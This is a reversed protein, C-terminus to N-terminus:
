DLASLGLLYYPIGRGAVKIAAIEKDPAPNDWSFCWVRVPTGDDATWEACRHKPLMTNYDAGTLAVERNFRVPIDATSGDAYEVTLDAVASGGYMAVPPKRMSNLFYLRSAKLGDPFAIKAEDPLVPNLQSHVSIVAPFGDREGIRFRVACDLPKLLATDFGLMPEVLFPRVAPDLKLNAANGLDIMRGPGANDVVEPFMRLNLEDGPSFMNAADSSDWARSGVAIYAAVQEPNDQYIRDFGNYGAWITGMVGLCKNRLVADTMNRVNDPEMWHCGVVDFGEGRMDVINPENVDAGYNWHAFVIDRPLEKRAEDLGFLSITKGDAAFVDPSRMFMDQWMMMRLNNRKCYDYYFMVDDMILKRAGIARNEPLVPYDYESGVEDHGIHLYQPHNFVEIVEDLTEAMLPHVAPHRPNYVTCKDPNEAMDRNQGNKFLWECHGLTQFLPNVDIFNDNAIKILKRLDDKSMAWPQRVSTTADWAVYECEIFLTNIRLPTLLKEIIDGHVKLSSDDVMILVARMDVDPWDEIRVNRRRRDALTRIAYFVGRSNSASINVGDHATELVYGDPRITKDATVTVPLKKNRDGTNLKELAATLRDGDPFGDPLVLYYDTEPLLVEDRVTIKKCNPLLEPKRAPTVALRDVAVAEPSGLPSLPPPFNVGPAFDFRVSIVEHIKEGAAFDGIRGIWIGPTSCEVGIDFGFGRRDVASLPLGSLVEITYTGLKTDFVIKKWNEVLPRARYVWDDPIKGKVTSGDALTATFGADRMLAEPIMLASYEFAAPVDALAEGDLTVVACDPCVEVSYEDLRYKEPPPLLKLTLKYGDATATEVTETKWWTTMFYKDGWPPQAAIFRSFLSLDIGRRLAVGSSSLDASYGAAEPAESEGAGACPVAAVVGFTLMAALKLVLRNM